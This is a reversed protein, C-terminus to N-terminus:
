GRKAAAEALSDLARTVTNRKADSLEGLAVREIALLTRQVAAAISRGSKTLTIVFARRDRRDNERTVLARQELRDLVSTLTSRRHGFREHLESIRAPGSEHLHALIHAEAQSVDLEPDSALALAVAHTARHLM